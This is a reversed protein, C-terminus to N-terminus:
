NRAAAAETQMAQRRLARGPRAGTAAGDRWVPTLEIRDIREGWADWQVLTPESPVRSRADRWAQAALAGLAELDPEIAALTASPLARV